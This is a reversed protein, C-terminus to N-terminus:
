TYYGVGVGCNAGYAEYSSENNTKKTTYVYFFITGCKSNEYIHVYILFVYFNSRSILSIFITM